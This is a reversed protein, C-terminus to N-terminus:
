HETVKKLLSDSKVAGTSSANVTTTRNNCGPYLKGSVAATHYESYGDATGCWWVGDGINVAVTFESGGVSSTCYVATSTGAINAIEGTSVSPTAGTGNLRNLVAYATGNSTNCVNTNGTRVGKRLYPVSGIIKEPVTFKKFNKERNVRLAIDDPKIGLTDLQRMFLTIQQARQDTKSINVSGRVDDYTIVSMGAVIALIAIVVLLEILTFGKATDAM